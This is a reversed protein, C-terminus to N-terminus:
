HCRVDDVLITICGELAEGMTLERPAPEPQESRDCRDVRGAVNRQKAYTQFKSSSALENAM